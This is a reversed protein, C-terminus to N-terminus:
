PWKCIYNSLLSFLIFLYSYLCIYALKSFHYKRKFIICIKYEQLDIIVEICMHRNKIGTSRDKQITQVQSWKLGVVRAEEWKLKIAGLKRTGESRGTQDWYAVYKKEDTDNRLRNGGHSNNNWIEQDERNELVLKFVDEELFM